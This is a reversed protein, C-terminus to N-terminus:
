RSNRALRLLLEAFAPPTRSAEASGMRKASIGKRWVRGHSMSCSSVVAEPPPSTLDLASPPSIGVYLLWTDKRARHGYARQSVEAVWYGDVTLTWGRVPRVLGFRKWADSWAPHELVGGCRLVSTLASEFCGGDEGKPLGYVAQRMGALRCWAACPPHAVVPLDGRYLRADRVEDWADM